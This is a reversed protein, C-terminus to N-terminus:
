RIVKKIIKNNKYIHNALNIVFTKILAIKVINKNAYNKFIQIMQLKVFMKLKYIM